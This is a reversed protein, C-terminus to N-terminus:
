FITEKEEFITGLETNPLNSKFSKNRLNNHTEYTSILGKFMTNISKNKIQDFLYGHIYGDKFDLVEIELNKYLVLKELERRFYLLNINPINELRFNWKFKEKKYKLIIILTLDNNVHVVQCKKSCKDPIFFKIDSKRQTKKKIKKFM